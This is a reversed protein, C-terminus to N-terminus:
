IDEGESVRLEQMEEFRKQNQDGNNYKSKRTRHSVRYCHQRQNLEAILEKMDITPPRSADSSDSRDSAVPREEVNM